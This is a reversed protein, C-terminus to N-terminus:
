CKGANHKFPMNFVSINLMLCDPPFSSIIFHLLFHFTLFKKLGYKVSSYGIQYPVAGIGTNVKRSIYSRLPLVMTGKQVLPLLPTSALTRSIRLLQGSELTVSPRLTLSTLPIWGQSEPRPKGRYVLMHGVASAGSCM